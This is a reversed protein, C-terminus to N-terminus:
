PLYIYTFIGYMQRVNLMQSPNSRRGGELLLPLHPHIRIGGLFHLWVQKKKLWAAWICCYSQNLMQIKSRTPHSTRAHIYLNPLQPSSTRIPHNPQTPHTPNPSHTPHTLQTNPLIACLVRAFTSNMSNMLQRKVDGRIILTGFDDDNIVLSNPSNSCRVQHDRWQGQHGINSCWGQHGRWHWCWKTLMAAAAVIRQRGSRSWWWFTKKSLTDKRLWLWIREICSSRSCAYVCLSPGCGRLWFHKNKLGGFCAQQCLEKACEHDYAILVAGVVASMWVYLSPGHTCPMTEQLFFDWKKSRNRELM